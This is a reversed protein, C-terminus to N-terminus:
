VKKNLFLILHSVGCLALSVIISIIILYIILMITEADPKFLKGTSIGWNFYGVLQSVVCAIPLIFYVVNFSPMKGKLFMVINFILLTIPFIVISFVIQISSDTIKKYYWLPLLALQSIISLALNYIFIKM